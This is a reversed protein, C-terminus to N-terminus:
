AFTELFPYLAQIFASEIVHNSFRKYIHRYGSVACNYYLSTEEFEKILHAYYAYDSKSKPLDGQLPYGLMNELSHSRAAIIPLGYAQAELINEYYNIYDSMCIFLDNARYFESLANKPVNVFLRVHNELDYKAILQIIEDVYTTDDGCMQGVIQLELQNSFRAHYERLIALLHKHGAHPQYDGIFLIKKIKNERDRPISNLSIRKFPSISMITDKQVGLRVLERKGYNSDALWFCKKQSHIIRNVFETALISAQKEEYKYPNLIPLLDHYKIMVLGSYEQLFNEGAAWPKQLHYILIDCDTNAITKLHHTKYHTKIKESFTTGLLSVPLDLKDLLHYMGLIDDGVLTNELIEAHAIAIRPKNINKTEM